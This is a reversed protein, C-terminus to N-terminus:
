CFSLCFMKILKNLRIFDCNILYIIQIDNGTSFMRREIEKQGIEQRQGEKEEEKQQLSGTGKQGNYWAVM